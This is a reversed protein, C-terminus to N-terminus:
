APLCAGPRSASGPPRGAPVRDAVASEWAELDAPPRLGLERRVRRRYDRYLRLAAAVDQDAVHAAILARHASERFPDLLVAASGAAVAGAHDNESILRRCLTELARVRLLLFRERAALAWDDRLDPLLDPVIALRGAGPCAHGSLVNEAFRTVTRLDVVLDARLTLTWRMSLLSRGAARRIRYLATRLNGGARRPPADPWLAAAVEARGNRTDHTVLYALLRQGSFGVPVEVGDRLLAFSGLVRLEWAPPAATTPSTM